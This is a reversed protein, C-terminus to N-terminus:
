FMIFILTENLNVSKTLIGDLIGGLLRGLGSKCWNQVWKPVIKSGNQPWKPIMKRVQQVGRPGIKQYTSWNRLLHRSFAVLAALCGATLVWCCAFLRWARCAELTATNLHTPPIRSAYVIESIEFMKLCKWVNWINEFLKLCKWINEFMNLSKWFKRFNWLHESM